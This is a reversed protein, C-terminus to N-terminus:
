RFPITSVNKHHILNLASRFNHNTFINKFGDKLENALRMTTTAYGMGILPAHKAFIFPGHHIDVPIDYSFTKQVVGTSGSPAGKAPFAPISIIFSYDITAHSTFLGRDYRKIEAHSQETLNIENLVRHLNREALIGTGYYAGLVCVSLVGISGVIKKM